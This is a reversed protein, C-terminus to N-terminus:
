FSYDVGLLPVLDEDRLGEDTLNVLLHTSLLVQSWLNWKMGIVGTGIALDDRRSTLTPRTTEIVQTSNHRRYLHRAEGAELQPADRLSRWLVEAVLTVREHLAIDAAISASIEDALDAESSDTLDSATYGGNLHLAFRGFNLSGLLQLRAATAGTGLLEEENGTPLRLDLGLAFGGRTGRALALKARLQLDGVGQASGAARYTASDEGGEFQHQPPNEFGETALRQVSTILEAELDVSVFPVAVALDFRDGIGWTASFVTAQQELALHADAFILDGEYITEVTSGDHNTDLHTFSQSIGGEDLDLDGLMDYQYRSSSVGVNWKGRGITGARETFIPGFTESNRTMVGLTSDFTYTFGGASSSIPLTSLQGVISDNVLIGAELLARSSDVFHAEHGTAALVITRDFLSPILGGLPGSQALAPGAALALLLPVFAHRCVKLM